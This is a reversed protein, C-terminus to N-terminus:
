DKRMYITLIATLPRNESTIKGIVKYYGAELGEEFKEEYIIVKGPELVVEGLVQTFFKNKSWQWIEEEEKLISFDFRQANRFYFIVEESGFNFIKLKIIIPEGISYTNKDTSLLIGFGELQNLSTETLKPNSGSMAYGGEVKWFYDSSCLVFTFLFVLSLINQRM